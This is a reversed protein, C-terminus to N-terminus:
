QCSTEGSAFIALFGQRDSVAKKIAAFVARALIPSILLGIPQKGSIVVPLSRLQVSRVSLFHM